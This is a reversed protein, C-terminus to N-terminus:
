TSHVDFFNCPVAVADDDDVSAAFYINIKNKVKNILPDSLVRVFRLNIVTTFFTLGCFTVVENEEESTWKM